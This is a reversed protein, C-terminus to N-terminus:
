VSKVSIFGGREVELRSAAMLTEFHEPKVTLVPCAAGYLTEAVAAGIALNVDPEVLIIAAPGTGLRLAEALAGSATGSGRSERMLILKETLKQGCQPHHIDIIIGSRPDFGGWFSLPSELHVTEGHAAGDHLPRGKIVHAAM